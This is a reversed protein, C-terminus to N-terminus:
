SGKDLRKAYIRDVLDYGMFTLLDGVRNTLKAHHYVVQVGEAALQQESFRILNIGTAGVRYGKALFLVDQMAQLSGKYHLAHRVLFLAYGVLAGDCRATYCRLQGDRELATYLAVDPDLPIDQYHAVELYQAQLLPAVEAWNDSVLEVHFTTSM